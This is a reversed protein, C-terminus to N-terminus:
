PVRMFARAEIRGELRPARDCSQRRTRAACKQRGVRTSKQRQWRAGGIGFRFRVLRGSRALIAINTAHFTTRAVLIGQERATRCLPHARFVSRHGPIAPIAEVQVHRM